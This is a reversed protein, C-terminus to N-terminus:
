PTWHPPRVDDADSLVRDPPQQRSMPEGSRMVLGRLLGHARPSLAPGEGALTCQRLVTDFQLPGCALRPRGGGRVRRVLATLRAELEALRGDDRWDVQLGPPGLAKSGWAGLAHEDDALLIHMVAHHPAGM